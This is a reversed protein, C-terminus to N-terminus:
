ATLGWHCKWGLAGLGKWLGGWFTRTLEMVAISQKHYTALIGGWPCLGDWEGRWLGLSLGLYLEVLTWAPFGILKNSQNVSCHHPTLPLFVPSRLAAMSSLWYGAPIIAERHSCLHFGRKMRERRYGEVVWASIHVVYIQLLYQMALVATLLEHLLQRDSSLKAPTRGSRQHKWDIEQAEPPPDTISVNWKLMLLWKQGNFSAERSLSDVPSYPYLSLYNFPLKCREWKLLIITAPDVTGWDM